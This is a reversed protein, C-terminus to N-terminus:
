SSAGAEYFFFDWNGSSFRFVTKVGLKTAEKQIEPYQTVIAASFILGKMKEQVLLARDLARRYMPIGEVPYMLKNDGFRRSNGAALIVIALKYQRKHKLSGAAAYIKEKKMKELIRDAAKPDELVDTKNLLVRYERNGVNKRLGSSSAAIKAADEETVKECIDKGLFEATLEPRHCTDLIKKGLCDLGIVGIVLDTMEPIVPEWGAPVKLPLCKAGDAEILLVDCEKQVERIKEEALGQIKRSFPQKSEKINDFDARETDCIGHSNKKEEIVGM